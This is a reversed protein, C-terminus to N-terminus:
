WKAGLVRLAASRRGGHDRSYWRHRPNAPVELFFQRTAAEPPFCLGYMNESCITLLLVARRYFFGFVLHGNGRFYAPREVAAELRRDVIIEM